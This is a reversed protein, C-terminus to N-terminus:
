HHFKVLYLVKLGKVTVVNGDQSIEVGSPLDIEKYGIRSM